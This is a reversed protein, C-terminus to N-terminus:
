NTIKEKKGKRKQNKLRQKNTTTDKQIRREEKALTRKEKKKEKTEIKGRQFMREVKTTKQLIQFSLVTGAVCDLNM